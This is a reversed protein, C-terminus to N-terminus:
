QSGHILRQRTNLAILEIYYISLEHTYSPAICEHSHHAGVINEM